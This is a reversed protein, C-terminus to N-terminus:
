ELADTISIFRVISMIAVFSYMFYWLSIFFFAEQNDERDRPDDGPDQTDGKDTEIHGKQGVNRPTYPHCGTLLMDSLLSM